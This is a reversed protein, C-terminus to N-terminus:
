AGEDDVEDLTEDSSGDPIMYGVTRNMESLYRSCVTSLDESTVSSIRDLYNDIYGLGYLSEVQGLLMAQDVARERSLIFHAGIQHKARDLEQKGVGNASIRGLEQHIVGEIEEPEHAGRAEARIHFLTPDKSEAYEAAVFTVSQEKEVLRQYLRSTKGETLILNLVQLAYSDPHAIEPAHYAIAIRPVKSRWQVKIRKEGRQPPEVATVDMPHPGRPISSFRKAIEDLARDTNFDGTVVLTANGPYYHRHYYDQQESDTAREVDQLWGIVPNRYPHVKYATADLEQILTGWPPDLGMRLEEIVVKKEAEFEEPAFVCNVM